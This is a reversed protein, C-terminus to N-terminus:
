LSTMRTIFSRRVLLRFARGTCGLLTRQVTRKKMTRSYRRLIRFWFIVVVDFM